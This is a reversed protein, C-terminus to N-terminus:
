CRYWSLECRGWGRRWTVSGARSGLEGKGQLDRDSRWGREPRCPLPQSLEPWLPLSLGHLRIIVHSRPPPPLRPLLLPAPEAPGGPPSLATGSGCSRLAALPRSPVQLGRAAAAWGSQWGPGGAGHRQNRFHLPPLRRRPARSARARGGQLVLPEPLGAARGSRHRRRGRARRGGCGAHGAGGGGGGARVAAAAPRRLLISVRTFDATALKMPPM